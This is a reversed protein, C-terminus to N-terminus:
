MQPSREVIWWLNLPALIAMAARAPGTAVLLVERATEQSIMQDPRASLYFSAESSWAAKQIFM